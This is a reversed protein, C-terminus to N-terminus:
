RRARGRALALVGDDPWDDYHGGASIPAHPTFVPAIITATDGTSARSMAAGVLHSPRRYSDAASLNVVYGLDALAGVTIRSLSTATTLCGPAPRDRRNPSACRTRAATASSTATATSPKRRSTLSCIM